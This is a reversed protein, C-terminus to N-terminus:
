KVLKFVLAEQDTGPRVTQILEWEPHSNSDELLRTLGPRWDIIAKRGVILYDVGKLRAYNTTREYTDYPLVVSTGGAYYASSYERNMVKAGDGGNDKLWAGAEKYETAYTHRITTVGAFALVPLLVAGAVLWPALRLCRDRWKGAMTATVTGGAWEELRLWGAATPIVVLPIFPMFFRPFSLMSLVLLVPSIMIALYGLGLARRRDWGRAFLGLGFLMILWLPFVQQLVKAHLDYLQKAFNKAAQLPYHIVFNVPNNLTSDHELELVKVETGDANLPMLAAEFGKVDDRPVNYTASYTNGAIFKGSYTWRGLEHHMYWVYPAAFLSFCFLFLGLPVALRRWAHRRWAVVLALVLIAMMYFLGSPNALYALGLATGSLIGCRRQRTKLMTWGFFIGSLLFFVYVTESYIYESTGVYIPWIAMLAAAMLGVREGILERGLLYTPVVLLTGFIAVVVYGSLIYDRFIVAMATIFLPLLPSYHTTTLGSIDLPGHGAALNEAMRVYATEDFQIMQRTLTALIRVALAMLMILLLIRGPTLTKRTGM